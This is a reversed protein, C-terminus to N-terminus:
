RALKGILARARPRGALEAASAVALRGVPTRGHAVTQLTRDVDTYRAKYSEGGRLFRYEDMGDGVAERITHNLLVFGLSWRELEPDRGTQYFSEVGAYRFGYWAAAPRDGVEAIWLRLWGQELAVAAFDRHFAALAPFRTTGVGWRASHLSFLLDMDEDLRDSSTTLRFRLGLERALRREYRRVQGRFGKSREALIEDWSRGNVLLAPNAEHGLPRSPLVDAIPWSEPIREGLFLDWDRLSGVAEALGSLALERDAEACVPTLQDSPGHGIVRLTRLPGLRSRSLPLIAVPEGTPSQCSFLRLEEGSGFHKWWTKAWEWTAFVNRSREAMERWSTAAM